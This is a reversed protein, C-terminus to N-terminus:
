TRLHVRRALRFTVIAAATELAAAIVLAAGFSLARQAVYGLTPGVVSRVGVCAVHVASYHHAQGRPAFYLPGLAWSVNVGAMCVGFLVYAAQLQGPSTVFAMWLFFPVLLAFALGGVRVIGIRDSLRGVFPVLLMQTLPLVLRDSVAWEHTSFVPAFHSVFLPTVSLLGLGYLMFGAEFLRFDRDHKLTRVSAALADRMAVGVLAPGREPRVEVPGDFRWRIRAMMVHGVVGLLAAAPFVVRVFVPDGDLFHGAAQGAGISCLGAVVTVLGYIRGRVTLPYNARILANRHPTYVADLNNSVLFTAFLLWWAGLGQDAAGGDRHAVSALAMLLLPGRSLLGLWFFTRQKEMRALVLPWAPALIWLGQGLVVLAPSTWDPAGMSRQLAFATLNMVGGSLGMLAEAPWHRSWTYRTMRSLPRTRRGGPAPEDAPPPAPTPDLGEPGPASPDVAEHPGPDSAAM